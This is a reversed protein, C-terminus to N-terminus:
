LISQIISKIAISIFFIELLFHSYNKDTWVRYGVCIGGLLNLLHYPLDKSSVFDFSLLCYAALLSISGVWGAYFSLKKM